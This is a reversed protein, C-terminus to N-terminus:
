TAKHANRMADEVISNIRDMLNQGEPFRETHAVPVTTDPLKDGRAAYILWLACSSLYFVSSFRNVTRPQTLHMIVLSDLAVRALMYAVFGMAIGYLISRCSLRLHRAGLLLLLTLLCLMARASRDAILIPEILNNSHSGHRITLPLLIAAILVLITGWRFISTGVNRIATFSRFAARFLEFIIAFTLLVTLATVIWYSYFYVVYSYHEVVLLYVDTTAQLIIYAYFWPFQRALGRKHMFFLVFLQLTPAGIWLVYDVAHLHM